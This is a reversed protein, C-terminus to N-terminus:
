AYVDGWNIIKHLYPDAGYKGELYQKNFSADKRVSEGKETKFEVLSYLQSDQKNGKAVFWIEDRRFIENTMTSLDHSTFILQAANRNITPDTFLNIIYKLLLPHLKSDIEDVILTRGEILAEALIPMLSFMKQTGSSEDLLNIEEEYGDVIHKTFVDTIKDDKEEIRFDVIDLDMEKFLNLMLNYVFDSDSVYMQLERAPNGYNMFSIGSEFWTIVDDIVSNGRYTIGLYSLLPLTDSLEASVKFQNFKNIFRIDKGNREFIGSPMKTEFKVRDLSEYIIVDNKIHLIYRYEALKTRFFLEFETPSNKGEDSFKFPAIMHKPIGTGAQVNKSIFIPKTVLIYLDFIASLVNTKGGGNPGYIASIPIFEDGNNTLIHEKHETIPAAQMDLTAEDLISRYNKVTFQSLM